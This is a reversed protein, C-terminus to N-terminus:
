AALPAAAARRESIRDTRARDRVLAGALLAAAVLVPLSLLVSLAGGGLFSLVTGVLLLVPIWFPVPRGVLLAIAGLLGGLAAVMAFLFLSGISSNSQLLSLPRVQDSRALTATVLATTLVAGAMIVGGIVTLLAGATALASGRHRLLMAVGVGLAGLLGFGAADLVSGALYAGSHAAIAHAQQAATGTAAPLVLNGLDLCLPSGVMGIAVLLRRSPLSTSMFQREPIPDDPHRTQRYSDV